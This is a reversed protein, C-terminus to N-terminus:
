FSPLDKINWILLSSKSVTMCITDFISLIYPSVSTIGKITESM